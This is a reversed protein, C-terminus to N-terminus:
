KLIYNFVKLDDNISKVKFKKLFGHNEHIYFGDMTIFYRQEHTHCPECRLLILGKGSTKPLTVSQKFMNLMITFVSRVPRYLIHM